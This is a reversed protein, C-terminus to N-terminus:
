RKPDQLGAVVPLFSYISTMPILVKFYSGSICNKAHMSMHGGSIVYAIHNQGRLDKSTLLPWFRNNSTMSTMKKLCTGSICNKAHMSRHGCSYCLSDSNQRRAWPLDCSTWLESTVPPLINTLQPWVKIFLNLSAIKQM